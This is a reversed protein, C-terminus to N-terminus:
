RLVATTIVSSMGIEEHNEVSAQPTLSWALLLRSGVWAYGTLQRCVKGFRTPTVATLGPPPLRQSKGDHTHVAVTTACTSGSIVLNRAGDRALLWPRVGRPWTPVPRAQGFNWEMWVHGLQYYLAGTSSRALDPQPDHPVRAFSPRAASWARRVILSPYGQGVAGLDFVVGGDAVTVRDVRHCRDARCRPAAYAIARRGTRLSQFLVRNYMADSEAWAVTEGRVDFPATLARSLVRAPGGSIPMAELQASTASRTAYVVSDPAAGLGFAQFLRHAMVRNAGTRLDRRLLLVDDAEDSSAAAWFLYRSSAAIPGISYGRQGLIGQDKRLAV